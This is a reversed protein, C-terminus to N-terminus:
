KKRKAEDWTKLAAAQAKLPSRFYELTAKVFRSIYNNKSEGKRPKPFDM